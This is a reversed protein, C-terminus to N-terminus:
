ADDKEGLIERRLWAEFHKGCAKHISRLMHAIQKDELRFANLRHCDDLEFFLPLEDGDRYFPGAATLPYRYTSDYRSDYDKAPELMIAQYVM